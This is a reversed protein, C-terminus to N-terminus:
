QHDNTGVEGKGFLLREVLDCFIHGIAIHCEQIHATHISPVSVVVDALGNLRGGRGTLAISMMDMRKAGEIARIVNASNGSTSIGVISM